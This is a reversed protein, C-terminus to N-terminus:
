EAGQPSLEKPNKQIKFIQYKVLVYSLLGGYAYAVAISGFVGALGLYEAGAYALPLYVGFMMTITIISAMIPKNLVNLITNDLAYISRFSYSFPVISLYLAIHGIVEENDTFLSGVYRGTFFLIGLMLVGWVLGFRQSINVGQQLRDLKKAGLNQGVFPGLVSSLAVVVMIAFLDIRSSVGLAAVAEKGFGAVISTILGTTLPVVLNTLSAPGGIYLIKRWSELLDKIDPIKRTLMNQRRLVYLGFVLSLARAIVTSLAAGKIELAPIPGWGFIFIPDLIVNLVVMSVMIMAPTKTDGNARICSNGVFPVIVFIVGIYWIYMYDGILPIIEESAGLLRFLPKLTFIGILVFIGALVVALFLSDVTLRKVREQNGKGVARSVVASAGMSMGMGIANLILVVPLTFSLAALENTGIQGVFYTDVLNFSVVAFIGLIMPLTLRTLMPAIAGETLKAKSSSAM